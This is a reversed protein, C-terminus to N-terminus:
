PHQSTPSLTITYEQPPRPPRPPHTRKGVYTSAIDAGILLVITLLLAAGIAVLRSTLWEM